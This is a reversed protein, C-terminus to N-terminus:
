PKKKLKIVMKKKTGSVGGSGPKSFALGLNPQKGPWAAAGKSSLEGPSAASSLKAEAAAVRKRETEAAKM